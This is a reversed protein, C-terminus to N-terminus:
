PQWSPDFDIIPSNTLNTVNEGSITMIMIEGNSEYVLWNGDPSYSPNRAPRTKDNIAKANSFPSIAGKVM